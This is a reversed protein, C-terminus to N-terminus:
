AGPPAGMACSFPPSEERDKLDEHNADNQVALVALVVLDM